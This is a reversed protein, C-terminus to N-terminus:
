SPNVNKALIKEIKASSHHDSLKQYLAQLYTLTKKGLSSLDNNKRQMLLTSITDVMHLRLINETHGRFHKSLSSLIAASKHFWPHDPDLFAKVLDSVILDDEMEALALLSRLHIEPSPHKLYERLLIKTSKLHIKGASEIGAGLIELNKSSLMQNLHHTLERHLQPFQWLAVIGAGRVEPNRSELFPEIYYPLLPDKFLRLACVLGAKGKETKELSSMVFNTLEEPSIKFLCKVAEERIQDNDETKLVEKLATIVRYRSFSQNMLHKKLDQFCSIANLASLRLNQSKDKLIALISSLSDTEERLGMTKLITEKLLEPEGARALLKQLAPTSKSHGNQGLIEVASLRMPLDTKHGLNAESMETYKKSMGGLTVAMVISMFIIIGNLILTERIGLEIYTFLMLLAAGLVAGIPKFVGQLLEKIDARKEHSIAYYSSDYANKFLINTLEFSGRTLSATALNFRLSMGITELIILLPHIMMTSVVGLGTLIRSAVILQMILALSNFILHFKGLEETLREAHLKEEPTISALQIENEPAVQASVEEAGSVDEEIGKTYQFEVTNMIAWQLIIILLLGRLFPVKRVEKLTVSFDNKHPKENENDLKPIEMTHNNYKLVIPLILLLMLVWVLIFKYAPISFSLMSLAFGGIIGGVTEASEIVPFTRQSELPSFLHENFLSILINLQAMFVGQAILFLVFFVTTQDKIFLISLLLFAAGGIATATILLENRIKHALPRFITTGIM